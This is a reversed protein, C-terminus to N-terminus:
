FPIFDHCVLVKKKSVKIKNIREDQRSKGADDQIPKGLKRCEEEFTALTQTLKSYEM